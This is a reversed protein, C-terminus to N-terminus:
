WAWRAILRASRSPLPHFHVDEPEPRRGIRAAQRRDHSLGHWTAASLHAM